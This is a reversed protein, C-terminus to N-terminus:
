YFSGYVKALLIYGAMLTSLGLVLVFVLVTVQEHCVGTPASSNDRTNPDKLPRAPGSAVLCLRARSRSIGSHLRPFKVPTRAAPTKTELLALPEVEKRDRTSKM